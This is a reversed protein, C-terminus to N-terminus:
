GHSTWQWHCLVENCGLPTSSILTALPKNHIMGLAPGTLLGAPLGSPIDGGILLPCITVYLHQLLNASIFAYLLQGGGEILLTNIGFQQQWQQCLVPLSDALSQPQALTMWQTNAPYAQRTARDVVFPTVICIPANTAFLPSDPPVNALLAQGRTIIIHYPLLGGSDPAYRASGYHPKPWARFTEGGLVIADATDRLSALHQKDQPSGLSANQHPAPYAIRGDISSAMAAIITLL